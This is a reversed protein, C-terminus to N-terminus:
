RISSPFRQRFKTELDDIDVDVFYETADSAIRSLDDMMTKNIMNAKLFNPKQPITPPARNGTRKSAMNRLSHKSLPTVLVSPQRNGDRIIENETIDQKKLNNQVSDSTYKGYGSATKKTPIDNANNLLKQVRKQISEKMDKNVTLKILPHTRYYDNSDTRSTKRKYEDFDGLSNSVLNPHKSHSKRPGDIEESDEPILSNRKLSSNRLMNTTRRNTSKTSGDYSASRSNNGGTLGSRLACMTSSWLGDGTNVRSRIPSTHTSEGTIVTKLKYSLKRVLSGGTTNDDIYDVESSISVNSRISSSRSLSRRIPSHPANTQYGYDINSNRNIKSSVTQSNYFQKVPSSGVNSTYKNHSLLESNVNLIDMDPNKTIKQTLESTKSFQLNPTSNRFNNNPHLNYAPITAQTAQTTKISFPPSLSSLGDAIPLINQGGHITKARHIPNTLPIQHINQINNVNSTNIDANQVKNKAAEMARLLYFNRIPCPVNAIRSIEELVQCTNPRQTPLQSLMVKILNKIRDNYIPYAPFQFRAELIASEGTKEFPTTYYCIKYLFVGLAWVDSKEDVPFARSLDLMEPSRYQATTNRLIDHKVYELEQGNRPPRIIGCVSGFDCVKCNGDKSILVNEIKIDRHILPPELAHMAAIGQVTQSMISLIEDERLRNQLRTNLFDILGGRECYEMLLFVEYSGEVTLSKAAHSDIFSVVHRNNKLLKMAEVEARLINLSQKDPVIVRKLCAINTKIYPDIPSIEAKYVQAFGGSALYKIIRAQHSGVTLSQGPQYLSTQPLNM